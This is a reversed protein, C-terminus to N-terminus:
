IKRAAEVVWRIREDTLSGDLSCDAGIMYGTKGGQAVFSRVEAEIEERSGEFLLTGKRNDFGGWVTTGFHKKAERIDMIDIYRSWSIVAATYDEWVSMRNPVQEWACFHIVNMSSISNAYDLVAKDSPTVWDRYEEATFRDVEANQVSYFIGDVGAETILGKVLLKVDEAIVNCAYKMAEPNERILKMMQPYGIQLRLYSLPCFVLQVAVCEGNLAAVIKKARDIQGRIHPHDAGLPEIKYLDEANEIGDLIPAPWCFYKDGSMKLFDVDTARVFDAQYKAFADDDNYYEAPVHKWMAVPVHDVEKGQFAAIVRERKNM